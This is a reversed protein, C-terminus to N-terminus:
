GYLFMCSNGKAVLHNPQGFPMLAYLKFLTQFYTVQFPWFKLLELEKLDAWGSSPTVQTFSFSALWIDVEEQKVSLCIFFIFPLSFPSSTSVPVIEQFSEAFALPGANLDGCRMFLNWHHACLSFRQRGITINRSFWDVQKRYVCLLNLLYIWVLCYRYGISSSVFQLLGM